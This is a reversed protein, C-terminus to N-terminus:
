KQNFLQSLWQLFPTIEQVDSDLFKATIAQGYPTGPKKQWALWTHLEAKPLDQNKFNQQLIMATKTSDKAHPWLPDQEPVMWQIFSELTGILHNNPMIWIGFPQRTELHIILGNPEPSEPLEIKQPQLTKRISEWRGSLQDDADLIFGLTSGVETKITTPLAELLTDIGGTEKVEIQSGNELVLYGNGDHGKKKVRMLRYIGSNAHQLMEVVVIVLPM